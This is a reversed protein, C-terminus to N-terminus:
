RIKYLNVEQQATVFFIMIFILMFISFVVGKNLNHKMRYIVIPVLLIEIVRFFMNFRTAMMGLDFLAIYIVFGQIYLNLLLNPLGQQKHLKLPFAFLFIIVFRLFLSIVDVRGWQERWAEINVGLISLLHYLPSFFYLLVTFPAIFFLLRTGNLVNFRSYALYSLLILGGTSHFMIAIASVIFVRSTKRHYMDSLSYIFFGMTIAQRMANFNYSIMFVLFYILLPFFYGIKEVRNLRIIGVCLPVLSMFCCLFLYLAESDFEKAISALVKFGPEINSYGVFIDLGSLIPKSFNYIEIYTVFDQGTNWRLASFVCLFIIAIYFIIKKSTM